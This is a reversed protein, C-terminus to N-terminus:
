LFFMFLLFIFAFIFLIFLLYYHYLKLLKKKRNEKCILMEDTCLICQSQLWKENHEISRIKSGKYSITRWYSCWELFHYGKRWCGSLTMTKQFFNLIRPCREKLPPITSPRISHPCGSSSHTILSSNTHQVWSWM